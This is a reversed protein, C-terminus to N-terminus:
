LRYVTEIDVSTNDSATEGDSDTVSATCTLVDNPMAAVSSLVLTSGNEVMNGGLSWQYTPALTEDPDSATATCTLTSDNYIGSSPTISLSDITPATNQITIDAQGSNGNTIGDNPTVRLTWTEGSNTASSPLTAATYSAQSVGGRLWEYTYTINSGEPDISPTDFLVVIEDDTYAPTPSLSLLPQSPLGNVTFTISDSDTLGDSDTATVM